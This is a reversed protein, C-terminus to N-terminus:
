DLVEVETEEVEEPAPAEAPVPSKEPKGYRWGSDGSLNAGLLARIKGFEKGVLGLGILWVRMSFKENEFTEQPRATVRKKAKATECLAYIFQVWYAANEAPEAPFWPFQLADLGMRIPLEEVGLAKKLLAEKALVMKTLNDIQEPTFGL